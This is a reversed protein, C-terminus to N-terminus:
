TSAGAQKAAIIRGGDPAQVIIVSKLGPTDIPPLKYAKSRGSWSGLRVLQRVVNREVVTRGRNDGTKVQVKKAQQERTKPMKLTLVGDRLEADIHADDVDTPLTFSRTFSGYNREVAYFRDTEERKEM